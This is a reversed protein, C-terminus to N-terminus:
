LLTFSHLAKGNEIFDVPIIDMGLKDAIHRATQQARGMTSAYIAVPREDALRKAAAEAHAHGLETLCDLKYDPHGHRVFVIRM